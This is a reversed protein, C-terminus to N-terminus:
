NAKSFINAILHPKRSIDLLPDSYTDSSNDWFMGNGYESAFRSASELPWYWLSGDAALSVIGGEASTIAIWDVHAGLRVPEVDLMSREDQSFKWSHRDDHYFNWLWLTGDDKLTVVSEGRGAVALWNTDKGFQLDAATLDYYGYSNIVRQDASIRFTGDDRIGLRYAWGSRMATTSRWKGSELKGDELYPARQIMFGPELMNTQQNGPQDFWPTWVSGDSKRLCLRNDALFVEAWNSETGLQLPTFSRLGPWEKKNNWGTAGWRWLTSDTKVLLVSWGYWGVSSWNTDGGFRVLDGAKSLKWGGGALRERHGPTESVWLTGDNKIGAQESWGVRVVNVWNSGANFAGGQSTLRIDGLFLALPNGPSFNFSYDDAWIRGDTLRVSFTGWHENLGPPNERSLRAVGHAPEFPTLKEWVRHYIATTSAVVFVMAAAFVLGNRCWVTWGPNLRQCNWFSLGVLAIVFTPIGIFYILPGHWVPYQFVYGPWSANFLLFAFIIIGLVAPALAQLTNRALTSAYLSIAGIGTAMGLLMLTPFFPTIQGLCYWFFSQWSNPDIKPSVSNVSEILRSPLFHVNPLIRPGELLLPLVTGFLVSLLLVTRFKIAFQKRRKVPLCLQGTLTGLKREEAMAAAGVLMPMVLWLGWFIELIFEMSSNRQYNGFKRAALVGLHLLALAGAMIFQAQHLQLEKWFLAARPRWFRKGAKGALVNGTGRMEPWVINGGTWAVDQARFFLRRAFWIGLANYVLLATVLVPECGPFYNEPWLGTVLVVIVGPVLLTFWFAAAVQRLLLVTWLAGSIIVLGFTAVMAFLEVIDQLYEPQKLHSVKFFAPVYWMIGIILVATGLVLTKTRWIRLRSIPQALLQSFLGSGVEAGFSNLAMNIVLLPCFVFPLLLWMQRFDSPGQPLLWNASALVCGIIFNPLLLRIEKKVLPNM